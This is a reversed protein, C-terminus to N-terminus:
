LRRSQSFHGDYQDVEDQLAEVLQERSFDFAEPLSNDYTELQERHYELLEERTVVEVIGENVGFCNQGNMSPPNFWELPGDKVFEKRYRHTGEHFMSPGEETYPECKNEELFSNLKEFTDAIAVPVYNEANSTIPNLYLAYMTM